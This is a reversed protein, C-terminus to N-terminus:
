ESPRADRDVTVHVVDPGDTPLREEGGAFLRFAVITLAAYAVSGVAWVVMPSPAGARWWEVALDLDFATIEVGTAFRRITAHLAFAQALSLAIALSLWQSRALRLRGTRPVAALAMGILAFALPYVYRPQVYTGPDHRGTVAVWTPIAIVAILMICVAVGKGRDMSRLGMVVLTFATSFSVAVVIAPMPVDLWGLGWGGFAGAILGPVFGAYTFLRDSDISGLLAVVRDAYGRLGVQAIPANDLFGGAAVGSQASRTFALIGLAGVIALPLLRRRWLWRGLPQGRHATLPIVAIASIAIYVAGDARSGIALAASLGALAYAIAAHRNSATELAAVLFAWFTGVGMVTWASPNNSAILFLGLPVSAAASSVFVAQRISRPAVLLVGLLLVVALLANFGRMLLVSTKPNDVVLLNMTRYFLPPYLQNRGNWADTPRLGDGISGQCGASTAPALRYCDSGALVLAPVAAETRDPSIGCRGPVDGAACWISPLHYADDPSSGLPASLSWATLVTPVVLAIVAIALLQARGISRASPHRDAGRRRAANIRRPLDM